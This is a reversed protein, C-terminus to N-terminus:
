YRSRGGRDGYERRGGGGGGPAREERPKAVNVTLARGDMDKGNLADIAKRAEDATSMTVFGFGRPRNTMRDMMLNAETVTGHAAFADRLENETINFSLNGVFLKNSM